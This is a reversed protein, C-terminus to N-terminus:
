RVKSGTRLGSVGSWALGGDLGVEVTVPVVPMSDKSSADLDEAWDFYSDVDVFWAWIPWM